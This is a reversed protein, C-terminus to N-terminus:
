ACLGWKDLGACIDDITKTALTSSELVSEASKETQLREVLHLHTRKVADGLGLQSHQVSACSQSTIDGLSNGKQKARGTGSM